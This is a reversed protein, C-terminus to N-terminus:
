VAAGAGTVNSAGASASHEVARHRPYAFGALRESASWLRDAVAADQAAPAFRCFGPPGKMEFLGTPGYLSGGRAETATAAYLLPLAGSAASHGLLPCVVRRSVVALLSSRGPGNAFLETAAFGPHAAISTVGWGHLESRRQLGLAFMAQALKSRCYAVGTQYSQEGQLDDIDLRAQRHAISTVNVVRAGARARLLPLLLGTLAFHALHNVGFQIEFGDATTQRAPPMMVGANNVLIDLPAGYASLRGAFAAISALRALDVQEFCVTAEPVAGVIAAVASAGKEPDRGAVVVSAGARALERAVELGLGGTGTVVAHRGLQSGIEGPTWGM